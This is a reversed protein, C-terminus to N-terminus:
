LVCFTYLLMTIRLFYKKKIKKFSVGDVIGLSIPRPQEGGAGRGFLALLVEGPWSHQQTLM